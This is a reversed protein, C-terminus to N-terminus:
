ASIETITTKIGLREFEPEFDSLELYGMCAQGGRPLADGRALREAVLIAALCPIEPGEHWGATLHWEIRRVKGAPDKGTVSVLMGGHEGGWRGLFTAMREFSAVWRDIPVPIGIQRLTALGALVFHQVAFELSARFQVTRTRPYRRLLLELDPVNCAAAWRWGLDKFHIRRLERWGIARRWSGDAYWDFPRGLYSFVARLTAVGRPSRQAPAISIQIDDITALRQALVDIVASSLAPLTSAGSV